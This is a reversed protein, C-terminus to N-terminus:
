KLIANKKDSLLNFKEKHHLWVYSRYVRIYEKERLILFSKKVSLIVM